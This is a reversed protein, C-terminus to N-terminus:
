KWDYYDEGPANAPKGIYIHTCNICGHCNPFGKGAFARLLVAKRVETPWLIKHRYVTLLTATADRVAVLGSARGIGFNCTSSEYTEGSAWRSFAYTIIQGPQLPERYFTVHRQLFSSLAEAIERFVRPSMRLKDRFYDETAKDWQRLDDWARGTRRKIWWRPTAGPLAGCGLTCCVHVVADCIAATDLGEVATCQAVKRRRARIQAKMRGTMREMQCRFLVVTVAAAVATRETTSLKGGVYTDGSDMAGLGAAIADEGGVDEKCPRVCYKPRRSGRHRRRGRRSTIADEGGVDEKGPRQKAEGEVDGEGESGVAAGKKGRRATSASGKSMRCRGGMTKQRIQRVDATEEDQWEDDEADDDYDDADVVEPEKKTKVQRGVREGPGSAFDEDKPMCATTRSGGGSLPSPPQM